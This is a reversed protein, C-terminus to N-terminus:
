NWKGLSLGFSEALEAVDSALSELSVDQNSLVIDAAALRVNRSAQSAIIRKIDPASIESRAMVRQIQTGEDCDVVIVRSL